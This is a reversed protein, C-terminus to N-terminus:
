FLIEYAYKKTQKFIYNIKNVAFNKAFCQKSGLQLYTQKDSHVIYEEFKLCGHLEIAIVMFHQTLINIGFLLCVM